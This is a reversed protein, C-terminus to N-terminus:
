AQMGKAGVSLLKIFQDFMERKRFSYDGSLAPKLDALNEGPKKNYIIVRLNGDELLLFTMDLNFAMMRIEHMKTKPNVGAFMTLQFLFEPNTLSKLMAKTLVEFSVRLWELAKEEAELQRPSFESRNMRETFFKIEREIVGDLLNNFLVKTNKIELEDKMEGSYIKKKGYFVHHVLGSEVEALQLSIGPTASNEPTLVLEKTLLSQAISRQNIALAMWPYFNLKELHNQELYFSELQAFSNKKFFDFFM